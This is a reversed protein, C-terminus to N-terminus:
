IREPAPIPLRILDPPLQDRAIRIAQELSQLYQDDLVEWADTQNNWFGIETGDLTLYYLGLRGFRLLAVTRTVGNFDMESEYAEITHGYELEIQYAESVRRYKESTPVDPRELLRRLETIRMEREQALFPVDVAVFDALVDIMRSILPLIRRRTVEIDEFQREFDALEVNQANVLQTLQRNYSGLEESQAAAERYENLQERTEDDLANIRQQIEISAQLSEEQLDLTDDIGPQAFTPASCVLALLSASGWRKLMAQTAKM